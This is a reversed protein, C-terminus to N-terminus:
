ELTIQVARTSGGPVSLLKGVVYATGKVRRGQNDRGDWIYDYALTDGAAIDRETVVQLFAKDHAWNWVINEDNLVSANYVVIDFVQSTYFKLTIKESSTNAVTFTIKLSDRPSLKQKDTALSLVLGDNMIRNELWHIKKLIQELNDPIDFGNTYVTHEKEGSNFYIEYYFADAVEKSIYNSKLNFFNNGMFSTFVESVEQLSLRTKKESAQFGGSLLAYGSSKLEITENIGAFGGTIRVRLLTEDNQSNDNPKTNDPAFIKISNCSLVFIMLIVSFFLCLIVKKSKRKKM